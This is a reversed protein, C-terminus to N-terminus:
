HIIFPDMEESHGTELKYNYVELNKDLKNLENINLLTILKKVIIPSKAKFYPSTYEDVSIDYGNVIKILTSLEKDIGYMLPVKKNLIFIIDNELWNLFYDDHDADLSYGSISRYYKCWKNFYYGKLIELNINKKNDDLIPLYSMIKYKIELPLLNM